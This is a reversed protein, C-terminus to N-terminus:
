GRNIQWDAVERLSQEGTYDGRHWPVLGPILRWIGRERADVRVARKVLLM